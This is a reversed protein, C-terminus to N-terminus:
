LKLLETIISDGIEGTDRLDYGYDPHYTFNIDEEDYYGKGIDLQATSELFCYEQGRLTTFVQPSTDISERSVIPAIHEPVMVYGVDMGLSRLFGYMLMTTDECDGTGHVLTEVPHQHYDRIGISKEDARYEINSQVFDIFERYDSGVEVSMQETVDRMWKSDNIRPVIDWTSEHLNSEKLYKNKQITLEIEESGYKGKSYSLNIENESVQRLIGPFENDPLGSNPSKTNIGKLGFLGSCGIGMLKAFERRSVM